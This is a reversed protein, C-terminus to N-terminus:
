SAALEQAQRTSAYQVLLINKLRGAAAITKETKVREMLKFADLLNSPLTEDHPYQKQWDEVASDVQLADGEMRDGWGKDLYKNIRTVENRVGIPSYKLNGFYEDAPATRTLRLEHPVASVRAILKLDPTHDRRYKITRAAARDADTFGPDALASQAIDFMEGYEPDPVRELPTSPDAAHQLLASRYTIDHTLNYARVDAMILAVLADGDHGFEAANAAADSEAQAALVKPDDNSGNLRKLLDFAEARHQDDGNKTIYVSAEIVYWLSADNNTLPNYHLMTAIDVALSAIEGYEPDSPRFLSYARGADFVTSEYYLESEFPWGKRAGRDYATKMTAYLASPDTEIAAPSPTAFGAALAALVLAAIRKKSYGLITWYRM